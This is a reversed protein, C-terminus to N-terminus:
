RYAVEEVTGSWLESPAVIRHEAASRYGALITALTAPYHAVSTIPETASTICTVFHDLEEGFGHLPERHDIRRRSGRVTVETWGSWVDLEVVGEEGTVKFWLRRPGHHQSRGVFAMSVLAGTETRAALVLEHDCPPDSHGDALTHFAAMETIDGVLSRAAHVTHSGAAFFYGLGDADPRPPTLPEVWFPSEHVAQLVLPRGIEGKAIRERGAVFAPAYMWNEAVMAVSGTREAAEILLILERMTLAPPKEIIVHKRANLFETALSAHTSAPTCIDVADLEEDAVLASPDDTWRPVEWERAIREALEPDRDVIWEVRARDCARWAPLHAGRAIRGAGVVAVRVNPRDGAM